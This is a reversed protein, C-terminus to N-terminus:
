VGASFRSRWGQLGTADEPGRSERPVPRDSVKHNRMMVSLPVFHSSSVADVAAVDDGFFWSMKRRTWWWSEVSLIRWVATPSTPHRAISNNHLPLWVMQASVTWRRLRSPMVPQLFGHLEKRIAIGIMKKDSVPDPKPCARESSICAAKQITCEEQVGPSVASGRPRIRSRKKCDTIQKKIMSSM